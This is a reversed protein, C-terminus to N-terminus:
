TNRYLVWLSIIGLLLLGRLIWNQLNKIKEKQTYDGM